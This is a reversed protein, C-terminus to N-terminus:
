KSEEEDEEEEDVTDDEDEFEEDDQDDASDREPETGLPSEADGTAEERDEAHSRKM